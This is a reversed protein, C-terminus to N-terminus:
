FLLAPDPAPDPAPQPAPARAPAAAVTDQQQASCGMLVLSAAVLLSPSLNM